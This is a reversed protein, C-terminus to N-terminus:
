TAAVRSLRRIAAFGALQFGAAISLLTASAPESLLDGVFGPELLEAFLAAGVPMAVVLLGTFRAQATASRADAETRDRDAAAAAFRRLLTALDGGALQQSLVAAAFSDVRGSRMRRRLQALAHRTPAGLALEARIRSMERAAPGELAGAADALAARASRGSALADAVAVAAQPLGREVARRYDSRRRAIAWGAAAPGAAALLPAPAPGLILAGAALMALAGVLALRRRELDTPAYGERGARRLPEVADALWRGAAPTALFAERLAVAGLGGAAAALVIRAPEAASLSGGVHM